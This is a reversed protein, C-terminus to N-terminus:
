GQDVVSKPVTCKNAGSIFGRNIAEHRAQNEEMRSVSTRPRRSPWAGGAHGFWPSSRAVPTIQDPRFGGSFRPGLPGRRILLHPVTKHIIHPTLCNYLPVPKEWRSWAPLDIWEKSWYFRVSLKEWLCGRENTGENLSDFIRLTTLIFFFVHVSLLCRRKTEIKKKKKFSICYNKAQLCVHAFRLSRQSIDIM